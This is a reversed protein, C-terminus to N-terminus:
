LSLGFDSSYRNQTSSAGSGRSFTSQDSSQHQGMKISTFDSVLGPQSIHYDKLDVEGALMEVARTMRPRLKSMEQVCLLGIKLFRLAEDKPFNMQLTPDVLQLLNDAKYSEWAQLNVFLTAETRGYSLSLMVLGASYLQLRNVKQVLYQEGLQMDFDVIARGSVIEM